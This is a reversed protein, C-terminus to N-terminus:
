PRRGQLSHNAPLAEVVFKITHGHTYRGGAWAQYYIRVPLKCGPCYFDLYSNAEDTKGAVFASVGAALESNLNTGSSHAHRDFDKICFSIVEACAPCSYESRPYTNWDSDAEFELKTLREKADIKSHM